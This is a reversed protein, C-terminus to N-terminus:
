YNDALIFNNLAKQQYEGFNAYDFSPMKGIAGGKGRKLVEQLFAYTGYTSLDPAFGPTLGKGDEGHCAVCHMAYLEGGQAISEANAPIKATSIEAMVFDAIQRAEADSMEIASMMVGEYNLGESGEKIVKVIQEKRGWKNLDAAKGNIGSKDFGHCQSCQVQFINDGMVILESESLSAWKAQFTDNHRAVERNYEGIQSYASLPYGVFIYWLGWIILCLYTAAWGIPLDNKFEKIGDWEEDSLVGDAKSHKIKNFYTATVFGVLVLIALAGILTIIVMNDNLLNQM